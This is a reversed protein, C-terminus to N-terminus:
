EGPVLPPKSMTYCISNGHQRMGFLLGGKLFADRLREPPHQYFQNVDLLADWRGNDFDIIETRQTHLVDEETILNDERTRILMNELETEIDRSKVAGTAMLAFSNFVLHGSPKLIGAINAAVKELDAPAVYAFAQRVTVLDYALATIGSLDELSAVVGRRGLRQEAVALMSPSADAFDICGFGLRQLALTSAGTGCCLDLVRTDSPLKLDVVARELSTPKDETAQFRAYALDYLGSNHRYLGNEKLISLLDEPHELMILTGHDPQNIIRAGGLVAEAVAEWDSLTGPTSVDPVTVGTPLFVHSHVVYSVEPRCQLIRHALPANLSAKRKSSCVHVAGDDDITTILAFDDVGPNEKNSARATILTGATTRKAIFGFEAGPYRPDRAEYKPFLSWKAWQRTFRAMEELDEGLCNPLGSLSLETRHHRNGVRSRLLAVFSRATEILGISPRVGREGTLVMSRWSANGQSPILGLIMTCRFELLHSYTDDFAQSITTSSANGYIGILALHPLHAKVQQMLGGMAAVDGILAEADECATIIPGYGDVVVGVEFGAAETEEVLRRFVAAHGLGTTPLIFVIKSM